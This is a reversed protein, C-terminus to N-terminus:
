SALSRQRGGIKDEPERIENFDGGLFWRDGWNRSGLLLHQWHDHREKDKISAYLFGAWMKGNSGAAEFEIEFSFSTHQIQYITVGNGWGVLLGGSKGMPDVSFWRDEWGLQSCVKSVFERRRKTECIFTLEPKLLRLSEKLQSITSSSGLGRCNWSLIKM